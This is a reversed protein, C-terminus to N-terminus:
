CFISHSLKLRFYTQYQEMNVALGAAKSLVDRTNYTVMISLLARIASLSIQRLLLFSVEQAGNIM